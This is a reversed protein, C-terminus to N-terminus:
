YKALRARRAQKKASDCRNKSTVQPGVKKRLGEVKEPSSSSPLPREGVILPTEGARQKVPDRGTAAIQSDETCSDNDSDGSANSQM